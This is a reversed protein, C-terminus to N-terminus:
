RRARWEQSGSGFGGGSDVPDWTGRTSGNERCLRFPHGAPDFLVRVHDQPQDPALVAGGAVAEAVAADLDDVQFDLLRM